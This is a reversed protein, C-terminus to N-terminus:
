CRVRPKAAPERLLLIQKPEPLWMCSNDKNGALYSSIDKENIDELEQNISDMSRADDFYTVYNKPFSITYVYM